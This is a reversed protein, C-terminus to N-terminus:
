RLIKQLDKDKGESSEVYWLYPRNVIGSETKITGSPVKPVDAWGDPRNLVHGNECEYIFYDIFGEDRLAGRIDKPGKIPGIRKESSFLPEKRIIKANCRPVKHM